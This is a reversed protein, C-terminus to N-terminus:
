CVFLFFFLVFHVMSVHMHMDQSTFLFVSFYLLSFFGCFCVYVHRLPTFLIFFSFSGWFCLYAHRLPAFFSSYYLFFSFFGPFMSVCTRPTCLPVSLIFFSFLFRPFICICTGPTYIVLFLIFFLFPIGSVHMCMNCPHLSLLSFFVVLTVHLCSFRHKCM